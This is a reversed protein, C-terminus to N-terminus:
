SAAEATKGLKRLLRILQGREEGSLGATAAEMAEAHTAFACEILKRGAATLQVIRVRRDREDSRREVLGRQELRDVAVSISGSTLRVKQGITNVPLPGKHLLVELVFFDSDGLGLGQINRRAHELLAAHAKMLVLWIHVGSCDEAEQM